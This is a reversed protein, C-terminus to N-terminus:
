QKDHTVSIYHLTIPFYVTKNSHELARTVMKILLNTQM